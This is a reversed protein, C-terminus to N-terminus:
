LGGGLSLGHSLRTGHGGGEELAEEGKISTWSPIEVVETGQGLFLTLLYCHGDFGAGIHLGSRGEARRGM